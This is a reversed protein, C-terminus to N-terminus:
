SGLARTTVVKTVFAGNIGCKVTIGMRGPRNPRFKAPHMCLAWKVHQEDSKDCPAMNAANLLLERVVHGVHIWSPVICM